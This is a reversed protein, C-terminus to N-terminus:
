EICGSFHHNKLLTERSVKLAFTVNQEDQDIVCADAIDLSSRLDRLKPATNQM